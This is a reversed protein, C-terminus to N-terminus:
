KGKVRNNTNDCSRGLVRGGVRNAPLLDGELSRSRVSCITFTTRRM